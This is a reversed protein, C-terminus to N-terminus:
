IEPRERVRGVVDADHDDLARSSAAPGECNCMVLACQCNPDLHGLDVCARRHRTTCGYSPPAPMFTARGNLGITWKKLAPASRTRHSRVSTSRSPVQRSTM